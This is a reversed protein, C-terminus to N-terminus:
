TYTIRTKFDSDTNVTIRIFFDENESLAFNSVEGMVVICDNNYTGDGKSPTGSVWGGDKLSTNIYSNYRESGVNVGYAGNYPALVAKVDASLQLLSLVALFILSFLKKM